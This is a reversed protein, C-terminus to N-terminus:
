RPATTKAAVRAPPAKTLDRNKKENAWWLQWKQSNYGFAPPAQGSVKNLADLVAPNEYDHAVLDPHHYRYTPAAASFVSSLTTQVGASPANAKLPVVSYVGDGCRMGELAAGFYVYDPRVQELRAGHFSLHDILYPISDGNPDGIEGLGVAVLSALDPGSSKLVEIYLRRASDARDPGIAKRAEGRVLQSSDFLSMGVLDYVPAQGPMSRLIAAYLVRAEENPLSGLYRGIAPLADPDDIKLLDRRARNSQDRNSGLWRAVLSRVKPMWREQAPSLRAKASGAKAAATRGASNGGRVLHKVSDREFVFLAGSSTRVAVNNAGSGSHSAVVSGHVTGGSNLTVVDASVASSSAMLVSLLVPWQRFRSVCAVQM